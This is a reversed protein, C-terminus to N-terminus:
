DVVDAVHVKVVSACALVSHRSTPGLVVLPQDVQVEGSFRVRLWPSPDYRSSPRAVSRAPLRPAVPVLAAYTRSVVAGTAGVNAPGADGPKSVVGVNVNVASAPVVVAHRRM